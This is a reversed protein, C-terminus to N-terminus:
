LQASIIVCLYECIVLLFTLRVKLNGIGAASFAINTGVLEILPPPIGKAKADAKSNQIKTNQEKVDDLTTILPILDKLRDRFKDVKVIQFFEFL